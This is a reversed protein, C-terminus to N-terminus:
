LSAGDCVVIEQGTIAGAEPSVLFATLAAM